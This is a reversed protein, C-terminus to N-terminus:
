SNVSSSDSDAPSTAPDAEANAAVSNEAKATVKEWKAKEAKEKETKKAKKSAEVAAAADGYGYGYGYGYKGYSTSGGRVHNAVVGSPAIGAIALNELTRNLATRTLVNMRAVMIVADVAPALIVADTVADVPPADIIVVDYHARAWELLEDVKAGGLLESPNPPVPGAPIVDADAEGGPFCIDDIDIQGALYNSLGIDDPVGYMPGLTPSRLDAGIVLARDGAEAFARSLNGAVFTKGEHPLASTILYVPTDARGVFRLSTRVRRLAEAASSHGARFDLLSRGEASKSAPVEGLLPVGSANTALDEVRRIRRDLLDALVGLLLGLVFGVLLGVAILQVKSPPVPSTPEAADSVVTAFATPAVDSGPVTRTDGLEDTTTVPATGAGEPTEIERIVEPYTEAVAQAITAANEPTDATATVDFLVTEEVPKASIARRLEDKTLGTQESVPDLVVDSKAMEAYSRVRGEAALNTQYAGSAGSSSEGLITVTLRATSSYQEQRIAGWAGFLGAIIVTTLLVVWWKRRLAGGLMALERM